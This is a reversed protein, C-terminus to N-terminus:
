IDFSFYTEPFPEGGLTYHWWEEPYAEFGGEQMLAKLLERNSRQQPSINEAAHHSVVDFLDFSTGMDLTNDFYLPYALGDELVRKQLVPSTPKLGTKILTVDVTSGRTHSSKEALFGQEFIQSKSIHPYFIPKMMSDEENLSWQLFYDVSRKPRYGDYVVLQYGYKSAKLQISKLAVAVEVTCLIKSQNYGPIPRGIFNFVGAYRVEQFIEPAWLSLEVLPQYNREM